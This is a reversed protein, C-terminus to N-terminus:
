DRHRNSMSRWASIADQFKNDVKEVAENSSGLRTTATNLNMDTDTAQDGNPALAGGNAPSPDM